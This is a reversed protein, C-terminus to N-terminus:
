LPKVYNYEFAICPHGDESLVTSYSLELMKDAEWGMYDSQSTNSLGLLHYWDSLYAQGARVMMANLNNEAKRLSEMDSTFYRGTHLECCLVNGPGSVIIQSSPPSNQAVKDQAISDRFKQEKKAGLEEVIKERYESFAKESLSYAATIAATRKSSLRSAFIIASVTLTGSVAAPIYLQWVREVKERTTWDEDRDRPDQLYYQSEWAAKGTLYATTVTGAVGLGTLIAPSNSRFLRESKLILTRLNM